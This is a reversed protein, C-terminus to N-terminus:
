RPAARRARIADLDDGDLARGSLSSAGEPRLGDLLVTVYRRRVGPELDEAITTVQAIGAFLLLVDTASVDTRVGGAAQARAVLEEVAGRLAHAVAPAVPLDEGPALETIVRRRAQLDAMRYAFADFAAVPDDEALAGHADATLAEYMRELVAGLLDPKTAFNRCVTGVGVGAAAAVDEIRVGQGATVFLHEAADLVKARNRRADARRPRAPGDSRAPVSGKSM